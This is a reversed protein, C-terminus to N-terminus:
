ARVHERRTSSSSSGDHGGRDHHDPIDHDSRSDFGGEFGEDDDRPQRTSSVEVGYLRLLRALEGEPMRCEAAIKQMEVLLGERGHQTKSAVYEGLRHWALEYDVRAM